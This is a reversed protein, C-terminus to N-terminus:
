EQSWILMLEANEINQGGVDCSVAGSLSSSLSRVLSTSFQGLTGQPERDTTTTSNQQHDYDIRGNPTPSDGRHSSGFFDQFWSGQRNYSHSDNTSGQRNYSHSDNSSGQRNYSHDISIESTNSESRQLKNNEDSM